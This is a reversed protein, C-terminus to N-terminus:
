ENERYNVGGGYPLIMWEVVTGGDGVEWQAMQRTVIREVFWVTGCPQQVRVVCLYRGDHKPQSESLKTYTM